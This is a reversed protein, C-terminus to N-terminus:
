TGGCRGGLRIWARRQAVPRFGARVYLQRAPTNRADVVITQQRVGAAQAHMLSRELLVGGMGRRRWSPVVGMYVVELTPLGILPASLICGAPEGGVCVIEWLSPEFRGAAKHSAIVAEIPRLGLLEPCDLSDTYTAEVIRCFLEHTQEGYAVWTLAADGAVGRAVPSRVGRDMYVLDALRRFANDALCKQKRRADPEVLAHTYYLQQHGAQDLAAAVLTRQDAARIGATGPEPLMLLATDGPLHLILALATERDGRRCCWASWPLNGEDITQRMVRIQAAPALSAHGAAALVRALVHELDATKVIEMAHM